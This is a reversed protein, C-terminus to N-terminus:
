WSIGEYIGDYEKDIQNVLDIIIKNNYKTLIKNYDKDKNTIIIIDSDNISNLNNTLLNYLYNYEKKNNINNTVSKYVLKDYIKINYKEKILKNIVEIIPSYRLDDTGSKFSLGLIIINKKNYKKIINIANKIQINNSKDINDIIPTKLGNEKSITKLARLDKPLCSGGYAFGPKFYYPSINLIKDKCFIEMVKHSDLNLSKCINGVENAFVIKLAHYSNNIYKIIETEEINTFIIEGNVNEYLKKLLNEIKKNDTGILTYPPNLFDNVASGERLFEPNNVVCFDVNHKKLSYKEIINIVKLVTGPKTTSRIAITHFEQKDKLVKGVEKAIDYIQSLDLENNENLPTGVTIITLNSNNLAYQIDCTASILNNKYSEEILKDVDKEIITAIGKNILNVKNIDKDVGIIKYGFNSLCAMNVCGVYGLGIISINKIKKM